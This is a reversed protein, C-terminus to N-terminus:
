FTFDNPIPHTTNSTSESEGRLLRQNAYDYYAVNKTNFGFKKIETLVNSITLDSLAPRKALIFWDLSDSESNCPMFLVANENDTWVINDVAKATICSLTKIASIKIKFHSRLFFLISLSIPCLIIVSSCECANQFHIKFWTKVFFAGLSNWRSFV